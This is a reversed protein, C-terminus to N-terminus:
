YQGYWAKLWSHMMAIERAQSTIIQDALQRMEARETSAQLMGAMMIATEHHPIMQLIFERDFEEVAITELVATDGEMGGKHMGGMMTGDGIPASGFWDQYWSRMDAIEKEQATIIGEALSLIESRKSRELAIRAMAIAGEHHPVMQVIFHQDGNSGVMNGGSMMWGATSWSTQAGGFLYGAALGLLLM